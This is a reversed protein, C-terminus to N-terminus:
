VCRFALQNEQGAVLMGGEPLLQLDPQQVSLKIRFKESTAAAGETKVSLLAVPLKLSDPVFFRFSGSNNSIPCTAGFMTGRALQLSINVSENLERGDPSHAQMNVAVSDGNAMTKITPSFEWKLQKTAQPVLAIEKQFLFDPSFNRMYNTYALLKYQGAPWQHDLALTGDSFGNEWAYLQHAVLKNDPSILDVYFLNELGVLKHNIANVLSAKFWITDGPAYQNSNTQLYLKEQINNILYQNLQSVAQQSFNNQPYAKCLGILVLLLALTLKKPM